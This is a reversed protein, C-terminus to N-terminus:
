NIRTVSMAVNEIGHMIGSKDRLAPWSHEWTNGSDSSFYVTPLTVYIRRHNNKLTVIYQTNGVGTCSVGTDDCAISQLWGGYPIFQSDALIDLGAIPNAVVSVNFSPYTKEWSNEDKKVLFVPKSNESGAAICRNISCSIGNLSANSADDFPLSVRSWKEGSNSTEYMVAHHNHNAPQGVDSLSLYGVALCHQGDNNCSLSTLLSENSQSDEITQHSWHLGGDNSTYSILTTTKGDPYFNGVAVCNINGNGSCSVARLATSSPHDNIAEPFNVDWSNGANSSTFVIPQMGSVGVPTIAGVAVCHQNEDCTVSELGSSGGFVGLNHPTWSNGGDYSNYAMLTTTPASNVEGVGVCYNKKICSISRIRGQANIIENRQWTSRIDNFKYIIPAVNSYEPTGTYESLSVISSGALAANTLFISLALVIFKTRTTM